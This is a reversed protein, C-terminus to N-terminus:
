RQAGSGSPPAASPAKNLQKIRRALTSQATQFDAFTEASPRAVYSRAAACELQLLMSLSALESIPGDEEERSQFEAVLRSCHTNLGDLKGLVQPRAAASQGQEVLAGLY